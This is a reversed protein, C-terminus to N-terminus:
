ARPAEKKLVDRLHANWTKGPKLDLAKCLEALAELATDGFGAPSQQLDVFDQRTAFWQNGDRSLRAGIHEAYVAADEDTCKWRAALELVHAKDAGFALAEVLISWAGERNEPDIPWMAVAFPSERIDAATGGDLERKFILSGNTHLYYWGVLSM